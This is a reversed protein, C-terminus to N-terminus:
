LAGFTTVTQFCLAKGSVKLFDVKRVKVPEQVGIINGVATM